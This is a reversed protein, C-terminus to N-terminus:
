NYLFAPLYPVVWNVFCHNGYVFEAPSAIILLGAADKLAQLSTHENIKRFRSLLEQSTYKRGIELGAAAALLYDQIYREVRDESPEILCISYEKCHECIDDTIGAVILVQSDGEEVLEEILSGIYRKLYDQPPPASTGPNDLGYLAKILSKLHHGEIIRTSM